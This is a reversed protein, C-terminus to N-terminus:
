SRRACCPNASLSAWEAFAVGPCPASSPTGAKSSSSGSRRRRSGRRWPETARPRSSRSKYCALARRKKEYHASVDVVFSAPAGDNIFYYCIWEPRWPEAESEYKRLGSLFAATTLVESAGTHDPHRDQWYPVAIARPRHHRIFHAASRALAPTNVIQGDPWALNERWAAGLVECAADAERRREEPTGNSGLEGASLDCLGVSYGEAVHRAITGGLGLELDDPHPGFVLLDIAMFGVKHSFVESTMKGTIPVFSRRPRIM